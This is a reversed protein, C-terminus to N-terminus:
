AVERRGEPATQPSCADLAQQVARVTSEYRPTVHFRTKQGPRKRRMLNSREIVGAAVLKDTLRRPFRGDAGTQDLGSGGFLATFVPEPNVNAESACRGIHGTLAAFTIMDPGPTSECMECLENWMLRREADGRLAILLDRFPHEGSVLERPVNEHVRRIYSTEIRLRDTSKAYLKLRISKTLNVGLTPSCGSRGGREGIPYQQWEADAHAATVRAYQRNLLGVADPHRRECYIEASRILLRSWDLAVRHARSLGILQGGDEIWRFGFRKPAVTELVWHKLKSEFIEIFRGMFDAGLRERLEDYRALANDNGDLTNASRAGQCAAFFTGLPMHRLALDAEAANGTAMMSNILTRTPNVDLRVAIRVHDIACQGSLRTAPITAHDRLETQFRDADANPYKWM